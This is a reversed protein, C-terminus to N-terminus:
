MVSVTVPRPGFGILPTHAIITASCFVKSSILDRTPFALFTSTIPQPVHTVTHKAPPERSAAMNDEDRRMADLSSPAEFFTVSTVTWRWHSHSYRSAIASCTFSASTTSENPQPIPTCAIASCKGLVQTTGPNFVLNRPSGRSCPIHASRQAAHPSQMRPRVPPIQGIARQELDSSLPGHPPESSPWQSILGSM